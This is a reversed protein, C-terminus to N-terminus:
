WEAARYEPLKGIFEIAERHCLARQVEGDIAWERLREHRFEDGGAEGVGVKPGTLGGLRQVGARVARPRESLTSRPAYSMGVISGENSRSKAPDAAIVAVSTIWEVNM